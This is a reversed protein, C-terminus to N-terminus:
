YSSCYYSCMPKCRRFGTWVAYQPRRLKASFQDQARSTFPRSRSSVSVDAERSRSSSLKERSSVSVLRQYTELGDRSRSTSASVVVTIRVVKKGTKPQWRWDWLRRLRWQGSREDWHDGKGAREPTVRWKYWCILGKVVLPGKIGKIGAGGGGQVTTPPRHRSQEHKTIVSTLLFLRKRVVSQIRLCAPCSPGFFQVNKMSLSVYLTYVIKRLRYYHNFLFSLAPVSLM